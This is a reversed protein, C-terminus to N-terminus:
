RRGSVGLRYHLYEESWRPSVTVAVYVEQPRGKSNKVIVGETAPRPKDSRVIVQGAGKLVTKASPRLVKLAIDGQYQAATILLRSRPAILVRYVDATDKTRSLTAGVTGARQQAPNWVLAAKGPLLSGNIWGIDDNPERPDAPPTKATLASGISLLGEGYLPDRGPDGLDTASSTLLRGIQRADLGPRAQTLWTAAASVMPASFSTGSNLAWPLTDSEDTEGSVWPSYVLAGPATIDVQRNRTAFTAVLNASDTASVSIVHPDTAPRMALNGLKEFTNGAAAVPLVGKRVATETAVFHSFCASSAFGYSMNIVAVGARAAALVAKTAGVCDDGSPFLTMNMGPWVGVIGGSGSRIADGGPSGAIAAVATGHSDESSGLSFGGTLRSSGLDPHAPNLSEEILALRPSNPTVPPPTIEVTNVIRNLWWQTEPDYDGPYGSALVPVDPEAYVLRGAKRLASALHNADARAISYIGTAADVVSAGERRTIRRTVADPEAGIIWRESETASIDADSIVAEEPLVMPPVASSLPAGNPVSGAAIAVSVLGVMLMALVAVAVLLLPLQKMAGSVDGKEM